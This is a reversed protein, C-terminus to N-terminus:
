SDKLFNRSNLRIKINTGQNPISKIEVRGGFLEAREVIGILGFGGTKSETQYPVFGKGNDSIELELNEGAREIRVCARDAASHKLLNNVSEQVIRYFNIETERPFYDDIDDIESSFDIESASKASRVIAEIAKTLGIRDLQYPRLNYSIEKVEGIAQSAEASIEEIQPNEAGRANNTHLFMLALNKIVVLRQGLSDHLEAAIRKREQEQSAILQRSFAQQAAREKELQMVRRRFLVFIILALILVVLSTFWWTLYFPPLVSIKLSKGEMNWIGEGNDAIVRFTYEGPPLYSYYATRRTGVDIWRDDLGELRYKFKIKSPRQWNIATYKIELSEEGSRIETSDNNPSIRDNILSREIIIQPPPQNQSVPDIAVLGKVTVFWFKGDRAKVGGPFAGNCERSLMGDETGYSFSNVLNLKGDAFDNLEQLPARYIGRNGSMWLNGRGDELISFALNDYLGEHTTITSFKGDKFRVLGGSHTGIWLTGTQDEYFTSIRYDPLGDQVTWTKFQGDQYRSVEDRKGVWIAGSRDKYLALITNDELGGEKRFVRTQGERILNLGNYTGVWVGGDNDAVISFVHNDSLGNAATYNTFTGDSFKHVGNGGFWINGDPDEAISSCSGPVSDSLSIDKIIGDKLRYIRPPIGFWLGGQRDEFVVSANKELQFSPDTLPHFSKNSFRLLGSISTGVWIQNEFDKYIMNISQDPVALPEAQTTATQNLLYLGNRTGIWLNKQGDEAISQVYQQVFQEHATFKVVKRNEVLNLGEATGVWLRNDAGSYLSRIDKHTLRDNEAFPELKGNKFVGLGNQTGVWIIGSDGGIARVNDSPLGDKTTYNTFQENIFVSLGNETGVWLHGDSDEFLATLINSALGETKSYRYFKRDKYRVLGGGDVAIWLNGRRDEILAQIYNSKLEPTNGLDFVTFDVGDFRALGEYTGIWLYGEHTRVITRGSNQPLGNDTTWQDFRYQAKALVPSFCLLFCLLLKKSLRM